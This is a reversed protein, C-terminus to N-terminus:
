GSSSIFVFFFPFNEIFIYFHLFIKFLFLSFLIFHFICLFSLLKFFFGSLLTYWFLAYCFLIFVVFVCGFLVFLWYDFFNGFADIFLSYIYFKKLYYIIWSKIQFQFFLNNFFYSCFTMRLVGVSFTRFKIIWRERFHCVFFSVLTSFYLCYVFM